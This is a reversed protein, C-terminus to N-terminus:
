RVVVTDTVLANSGTHQFVVIAQGPSDAHFRFEQTPGAPVALAAQAVSVFRVSSSSVAPNDYSGPGITQLVITFNSGNSVVFSGSPRGVFTTADFNIDEAASCASSGILAFALVTQQLRIRSCM